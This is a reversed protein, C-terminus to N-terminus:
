LTGVVRAYMAHHLAIASLSQGSNYCPEALEQQVRQFAVVTERLDSDNPLLITVSRKIDMGRIVGLVTSKDISTTDKPAHSTRFSLRRKWEGTSAPLGRAAPQMSVPVGRRM